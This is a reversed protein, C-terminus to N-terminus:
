YLAKDKQFCVSSLQRITIKKPKTASFEMTERFSPVM